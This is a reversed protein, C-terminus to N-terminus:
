PTTVSSLNTKLKGTIITTCRNTPSYPLAEYSDGPPVGAATQATENVVVFWCYTSVDLGSFAVDSSGLVQTVMVNKDRLYTRTDKTRTAAAVYEITTQVAGMQKALSATTAPFSGGSKAYIVQASKVSNTLDSAVLTHNAQTRTSLFVPIAIAVLVAMILLVVMLEVLSFGAEEGLPGEAAARGHGAVAGRPRTGVVPAM